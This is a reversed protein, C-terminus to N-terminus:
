LGSAPSSSLNHVCFSEEGVLRHRFILPTPTADLSGAVLSHGIAAAVQATLALYGLIIWRGILQLFATRVLHNIIWGTSETVQDNRAQM